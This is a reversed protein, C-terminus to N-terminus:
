VDKCGAKRLADFIAEAKTPGGGVLGLCSFYWFPDERCPHVFYSNAEVLWKGLLREARQYPTEDKLSALHARAASLVVPMSADLETPEAEATLIADELEEIHDAM